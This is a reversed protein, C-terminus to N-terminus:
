EAPRQNFRNMVQDFETNAWEECADAAHAVANDIAAQENPEFPQLVYDIVPMHGQPRGVGMRIRKFSKTGLHSILSKMGNHGGAGGQLRLRIRGTELDMDDYVVLVDDTELSYFDLLPRVCEGSLNMFTLPKVLLLSENQVFVKDYVGNYKQKKLTSGHRKALEDIVMFGINHRTFEYRAGPNGLGVICKM